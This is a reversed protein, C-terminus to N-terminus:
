EDEEEATTLPGPSVFGIAEEDAAREGFNVWVSDDGAHVEIETPMSDTMVAILELADAFLKVVRMGGRKVAYVGM